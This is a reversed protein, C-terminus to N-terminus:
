YFRACAARHRAKGKEQVRCASENRREVTSTKSQIAYAYFAMSTTEKSTISNQIATALADRGKAVYAAYQHGDEAIRSLVQEYTQAALLGHYTPADPFTTQDVTTGAKYEADAKDLLAEVSLLRVFPIEIFECLYRFQVDGSTQASVFDALWSIATDFQRMQANLEGSALPVWITSMVIMLFDLRQGQNMQATTDPFPFTNVDNVSTFFLNAVFAAASNFAGDSGIVRDRDWAELERLSLLIRRWRLATWFNANDAEDNQRNLLIKQLRQAGTQGPDPINGFYDAALSQCDQYSQLALSFERNAAHHNGTQWANLAALASRARGVFVDFTGRIPNAPDLPLQVSYGHATLYAIIAPNKSLYAVYDDATLTELESRLQDLQNQEVLDDRYTYFNEPFPIEPQQPQPPPDVIPGITVSINGFNNALRAATRATTYDGAVVAYRALWYNYAPSDPVDNVMNALETRLKSRDAETAVLASLSLVGGTAPDLNGTVSLQYRQQFAKLQASTAQGFQPTPGAETGTISLGVAALEDQLQKVIAVPLVPAAPTPAVGTGGGVAVPTGPNIVPTFIGSIIPM